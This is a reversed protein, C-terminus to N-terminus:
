APREPDGRLRGQRPRYCLVENAALVTARRPQGTLLGMEGVFAPAKVSALRQRPADPTQNYVDINGRSLVYLSEAAEDQRIIAEGPAFPM